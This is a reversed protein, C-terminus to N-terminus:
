AAIPGEVLTRGEIPGAAAMEYMVRRSRERHAECLHPLYMGEGAALNIYLEVINPCSSQCKESCLKSSFPSYEALGDSSMGVCMRELGCAKLCEESEIWEMAKEAMIGSAQCEYEVSTTSSSSAATYKKELVCRTGSSSVAFACLEVPLKECEVGGEGLVFGQMGLLVFLIVASAVASAM